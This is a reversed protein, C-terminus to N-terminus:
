ELFSSSILCRKEVGKGFMEKKRLRGMEDPVNDVKQVAAPLRTALREAVEYFPSGKRWNGFGNLDVSAAEEFAMLIISVTGEYPQKRWTRGVEEKSGFGRWSKLNKSPCCSVGM